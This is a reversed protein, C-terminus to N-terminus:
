KKALERLWKEWRDGERELQEISMGKEIYWRKFGYDKTASGYDYSELIKQGDSSFLFDLFLVAAHPHPAQSSLGASGASAPVIDMAVWAVPAKKQAAVLAHNRFITPSAEVEGSIIMDNLAQASVAHMTLDQGRLQKLYEEGKTRLMAGVTRSGTDSTVFAMRGKLVPNLLGDYNKPVASAPLKNKNYAFGMYSERDTAWFFSGKGAEEKSESSVKALYPSNFPTLRKMARMLMLLPPSSEAVDMLYKKAQTEALVKAILDRSQGRYAEVPIGYKSEFAKVLEKYSGGAIATYWVVKGEKKAGAWLVQERDAGNYVALEALTAPKASQAAAPSAATLLLIIALLLANSM